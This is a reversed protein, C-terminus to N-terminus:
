LYESYFEAVESFTKAWNQHRVTDFKQIEKIMTRIKTSDESWNNDLLKKQDSTLSDVYKQTLNHIGYTGFALHRQHNVIDGLRNTSFNNKVWNDLKLQYHLNFISVTEEILFMVNVPLNERLTLM